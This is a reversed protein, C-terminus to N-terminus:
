SMEELRPSGVGSRPPLAFRKKRIVFAPSLWTCSVRRTRDFSQCFKGSSFPPRAHICLRRNKCDPHQFVQCEAFAIFGERTIKQFFETAAAGGEPVPALNKGCHYDSAKAFDNGTARHQDECDEPGHQRGCPHENDGIKLLVEVEIVADQLHLPWPISEAINSQKQCSVQDKDPNSNEQIENSM